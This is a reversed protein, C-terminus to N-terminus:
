SISPRPDPAQLGWERRQNRSQRTLHHDRPRRLLGQGSRVGGSRSPARGALGQLDESLGGSRGRAELPRRGKAGAVRELGLPSEDVIPEVSESDTSDERRSCPDGHDWRGRPAGCSRSKPHGTPATATRGSSKGFPAGIRRSADSPEALFLPAFSRRALSEQLVRRDSQRDSQRGAPCFGRHGSM